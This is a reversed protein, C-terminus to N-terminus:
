VVFIYFFAVCQLFGIALIYDSFISFLDSFDGAGTGAMPGRM